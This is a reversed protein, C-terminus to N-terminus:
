APQVAVMGTQWPASSSHQSQGPWSVLQSYHLWSRRLFSSKIEICPTFSLDRSMTNSHSFCKPLLSHPLAQCVQLWDAGFVLVYVVFFIKKFHNVSTEDLGPLQSSEAEADKMPQITPREQRYERFAMYGNFLMFGAFNIHYFGM